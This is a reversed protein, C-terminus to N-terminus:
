NHLDTNLMIISFALIFATDASPFINPNQICFREAFKEMFRDIKQAEGPLRFGGLYHRIAEDFELDTFDMMDVYAHLVKVCFGDNYQEEKGLYEGIATKDLNKAYDHLFTAVAHPTNTSIHGTKLFFDIGKKPSLSFKLIGTEMEQQLRQKRDFSEVVSDSLPINSATKSLAISNEGNSNGTGKSEEIVIDVKDGDINLEDRPSTIPSQDGM